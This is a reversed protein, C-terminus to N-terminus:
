KKRKRGSATTSWKVSKPGTKKAAEKKSIKGAVAKPRCAPYPRGKDKAGSRGCKKGTKVDTWEEGFWKGLGGKAFSRRSPLVHNSKTKLRAVISVEV